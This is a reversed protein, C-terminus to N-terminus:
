EYRNQEYTKMNTEYQTPIILDFGNFKAWEVPFIDLSNIPLIHYFLKEDNFLSIDDVRLMKMKMGTEVHNNGVANLTLLNFYREPAYMLALKHEAAWHAPLIHPHTSYAIFSLENDHDIIVDFYYDNYIHGIRSIYINQKTTEFVELRM